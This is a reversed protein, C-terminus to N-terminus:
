IWTDGASDPFKPASQGGARTQGKDQKHSRRQAGCGNTQRRCTSANDELSTEGWQLNSAPGQGSGHERAWFDLIAPRLECPCSVSFFMALGLERRIGMLVNEPMMWHAQRSLSLDPDLTLFLSVSGVWCLVWVSLEVPCSHKSWSGSFARSSPAQVMFFSGHWPHQIAPCRQSPVPVHVCLGAGELFM